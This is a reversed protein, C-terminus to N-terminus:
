AKQGGEGIAAGTEGALVKAIHRVEVNSGRDLLRSKLQFPCGLDTSVLLSAGSAEIEETKKSAM